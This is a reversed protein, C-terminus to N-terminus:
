DASLQYKEPYKVSLLTLGQAPAAIGALARDRRDLVDQLWSADKEKKGLNSAGPDIGGHGADLIVKTFPVAKATNNSNLTLFSLCIFVLVKFTSFHTSHLM